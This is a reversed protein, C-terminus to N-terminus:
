LPARPTSLDISPTRVCIGGATNLLRGEFSLATQEMDEVVGGAARVVAVGAAHDWSKERYAGRALRLYLDARGSAVMAYKCQSDIRIPKIAVGAEELLTSTRDKDTHAKEYSLCTRVVGDAPMPAVHIPAFAELADPAGAAAYAVGEFAVYTSGHPDIAGYDEAEHFPLHPCGLVGFTPENSEIRALAIAFQGGRLFGKTGDIPDLCWYPHPENATPEFAGGDLIVRLDNTTKPTASALPTSALAEELLGLVERAILEGGDGDLSAGSEEAVLRDIHKDGLARLSLTLLAQVALDAVTVPSRDDKLASALRDRDKAATAALTSALTISSLAPSPDFAV